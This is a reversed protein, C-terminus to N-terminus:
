SMESLNGKTKFFQGRTKETFIPLEVIEGLGSRTMNPLLSVDRLLSDVLLCNHVRLPVSVSYQLTLLM